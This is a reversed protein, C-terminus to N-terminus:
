KEVSFVPQSFTHKNPHQPPNVCVYLGKAPDKCLVFYDHLQSHLTISLSQLTSSKLHGAHISFILYIYFLM